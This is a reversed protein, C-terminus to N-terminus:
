RAWLSLLACADNVDEPFSHESKFYADVEEKKTPFMKRLNNKTPPMVSEGKYVLCSESVRYPYEKEKNLDYAVGESYFTGYEKIASTQSTTGYAGQKADKIIKVERKLAIGMDDSVPYLRVFAGQHRIFTVTDIRVKMINEPDAAVLENGKDDIFRLTNDAACINLKGQAPSQGRLYVMGQGFAPMLYFVDDPIGRTPLDQAQIGTLAGPLAGTLLCATLLLRGITTQFRKNM